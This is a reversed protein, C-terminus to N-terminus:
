LLQSSHSGPKVVGYIDFNDGMLNTLMSTFGRTHSNGICFIKHKKNDTYSNRQNNLEIKLNNILNLMGDENTNILKVKNNASEIVVGNVLTPILHATNNDTRTVIVSVTANTNFCVLPKYRHNKSTLNYDTDCNVQNRQERGPM